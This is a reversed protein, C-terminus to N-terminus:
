RSFIVDPLPGGETGNQDEWPRKPPRHDDPSNHEGSAELKLRESEPLSMRRLGELLRVVQGARQSMASLEAQLPQVQPM